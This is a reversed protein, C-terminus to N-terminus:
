SVLTLIHEKPRAAEFTQDDELAAAMAPTIPREPLQQAM